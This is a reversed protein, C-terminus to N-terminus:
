PGAYVLSEPAGEGAEVEKMISNSPPLKSEESLGPTQSREAM